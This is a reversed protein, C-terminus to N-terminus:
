QNKKIWFVNDGPSNIAQISSPRCFNKERSSVFILKFAEVLSTDGVMHVMQTIFRAYVGHTLVISEVGRYVQLLCALVFPSGIAEM